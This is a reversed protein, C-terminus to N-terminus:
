QIGGRQVGFCLAAQNIIALSVERLRHGIEVFDRGGARIIRARQLTQRQRLAFRPVRTRGNTRNLPLSDLGQDVFSAESTMEDSSLGSVDSLVRKLETELIPIRSMTVVIEAPQIAIFSETPVAPAAAPAPVASVITPAPPTRRAFWYREGKFPYTPLPLRQASAAVPWALDIGACWLAGLGSLAHMAPDGPDAATGLLAVNRPVAGQSTRHQRLLATLAQGPGVEVFVAEGRALEAAVARSFQVPARVQRAWYQPDTAEGLQLPDGSVCSYVVSKPPHLSARQLAKAVLPLAGEMSASHFAHSVRLKTTGIDRAELQKAFGDIAEHRGAVVTLTPANCGAIEIGAPLLSQVADVGTRVALMAGRPQDFMAQGRAIVAAMADELSFVGAHCAAAYEGISHGIMADPRLGLSDLWAALACSVSFLAPQAYRTEALLQAVGADAPDASVLWAHLDVGLLKHAISLGRDLAERFAPAEDYLYRVMGPHQSGQGPFLFVLRPKQLAAVPSKAARLATAADAVSSAVVSLRQAMPKRGRMLTAAVDALSLSPHRELHEALDRARQLAADPTRASLPLVFLRADGDSPCLAAAPAEEIVVHANTGGVGFSSIAARRAEVARPWPTNHAVVKFPTNAFDIQPNPRRFHLTGPIVEHHLSLATKILGIVGAGAAMHGLNSKVSGIGCFGSDPTDERWARTLAAVEIPDGLSTGTGHAEVYGISRASLQAHELAMRIAGAQGTVSPATFSAKDGGDNNLGVGRIVAYITDGSALADELRRLVVVGGGSAFVTGSADADFPRCHGDASEMGGEVHLYGSIQPVAANVGGALAVDCQGDALAHWAQAVAVLSTSCATHISLAPGNLNLRNAVRTAVYDKESALMTAFEGYQHVLEPQEQRLAPAYANNGTGAYVGVREDGRSPDIAAHELASVCLELMLRQQPDLMTAERASIGFYAADFRDVNELVGHAAVFNPRSRVSEPVGPDIDTLAFQRIGERGALLNQWFSELDAAGPTRSAMGIIAIGATAQTQTNRQKKRAQPQGGMAAAIGAVTPRDYVDAVSVGQIGLDKLRTVFRM